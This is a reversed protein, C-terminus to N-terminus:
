GGTGAPAHETGQQIPAVEPERTILTGTGHTTYLEGLLAGPETGSVVHVRQVGGELARRVATAKVVMGGEVSALEGLEALTLASALSGPDGARTLVGAVSTALVLKAAGLAVALEAALVDANANLRGDAVVSGVPPGVVPIEGAALATVLPHVDVEVVDGVFGFDIREAGGTGAVIEGAPVEVPPRRRARACHEGPVIAARAGAAALDTALEPSLEDRAAVLAELAAATTIRRGGVKRPEEGLARQAIDVQPGAGHVLVPKSGLAELVAVQHALQARVGPHALCAGGVKVVIIKGRHLRAHDAAAVLDIGSRLHASM